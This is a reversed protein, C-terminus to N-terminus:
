PPNISCKGYSNGLCLDAILTWTMDANKLVTHVNNERLGFFHKHMSVWVLRKRKRRSSASRVQKVRSKKSAINALMDYNSVDGFNKKGHCLSLRQKRVGVQAKRHDQKVIIYTLKCLSNKNLKEMVYQDKIFSVKIRAKFKIYSLDDMRVKNTLVQPMQPPTQDIHTVEVEKLLNLCEDKYLSLALFEKDEKSRNKDHEEIPSILDEFSNNHEDADKKDKCSGFESWEMTNTSHLTFEENQEKDEDEDDFDLVTIGQPEYTEERNLQEALRGVETEIARQNEEKNSKIMLILKDLKQNLDYLHNDDQRQGQYYYKQTSRQPQNFVSPSAYAPHYYQNGYDGPYMTYDEIGINYDVDYTEYEYADYQSRYDYTELVQEKRKAKE